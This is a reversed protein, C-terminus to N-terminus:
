PAPTHPTFSSWTCTRCPIICFPCTSGEGQHRPQHTSLGTGLSIVWPCDPYHQPSLCPNFSPVSGLHAAPACSPWWYYLQSPFPQAGPTCLLVPSCKGGQDECLRPVATLPQTSVPSITTGKMKRGTDAAHGVERHTRCGQLPLARVTSLSVKGGMEMHWTM